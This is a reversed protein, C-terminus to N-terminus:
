QSLNQHRLLSGPTLSAHVSEKTTFRVVGVREMIYICIKELRSEWESTVERGHKGENFLTGNSCSGKHLFSIKDRTGSDMTSKWATYRNRFLVLVGDIVVSSVKRLIEIRMEVVNM